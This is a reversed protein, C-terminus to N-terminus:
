VGMPLGMSFGLAKTSCRVGGRGRGSGTGRGGRGSHQNSSSERLLSAIEELKYHAGGFSKEVIEFAREAAARGKETDRNAIYSRSLGIYVDLIHSRHSLFSFSLSSAFPNSLLTGALEPHDPPFAATLIHLAEQYKHIALPSMAQKEQISSITLLLKYVLLNFQFFQKFISCVFACLWDFIFAFSFSFSLLDSTSTRWDRSVCRWKLTCQGLSRIPPSILPSFRFCIILSSEARLYAPGADSLRGSRFIQRFRRDFHVKDHFISIM